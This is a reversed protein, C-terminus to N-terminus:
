YPLKMVKDYAETMNDIDSQTLPFAKLNPYDKVKEGIFKLLQPLLDLFEKYDAM